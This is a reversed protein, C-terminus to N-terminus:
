RWLRNPRLGFVKSAAAQILLAATSISGPPPPAVKKEKKKGPEEMPVRYTSVGARPQHSLKLIWHDWQEM